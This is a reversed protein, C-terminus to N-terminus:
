PRRHYRGGERERERERERETHTHTHTHAPEDNTEHIAVLWLTVLVKVYTCLIIHTNYQCTNAFSFSYFPVQKLTTDDYRDISGGGGRRRRWNRSKTRTFKRRRRASFMGENSTPKSRLQGGAGAARLSAEYWSLAIHLLFMAPLNM